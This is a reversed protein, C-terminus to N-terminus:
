KAFAINYHKGDERGFDSVPKYSFRAAHCKSAPDRQYNERNTQKDFRVYNNQKLTSSVSLGYDGGDTRIGKNGLHQDWSKRLLQM